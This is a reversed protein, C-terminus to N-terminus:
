QGLAKLKDAVVTYEDNLELTFYITKLLKLPNADSPNLEHAKTLFPVASRLLEKAREGEAQELKM